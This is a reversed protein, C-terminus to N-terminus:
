FVILRAAGAYVVNKMPDPEEEPPLSSDGVEHTKPLVPTWTTKPTAPPVTDDTAAKTSVNESVKASVAETGQQPSPGKKAKRDQNEM